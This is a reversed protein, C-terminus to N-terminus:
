YHGFLWAHEEQWWRGVVSYFLLCYMRSDCTLPQHTMSANMQVEASIVSHQTTHGSTVLSFFQVTCDHMDHEQALISKHNVMGQWNTFHDIPLIVTCEQLIPHPWSNVTFLWFPKLAKDTQKLVICCRMVMTIHLILHSTPTSINACEGEEESKANIVPQKCM